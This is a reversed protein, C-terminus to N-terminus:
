RPLVRAGRGEAGGAALAARRESGRRSGAPGMEGYGRRGARAKGPLRGLGAPRSGGQRACGIEQFSPGHLMPMALSPWARLPLRARGRVGARRAAGREAARRTTRRCAMRAHRSATRPRGRAHKLAPGATHQKPLAGSRAVRMQAGARSEGQSAHIRWSVHIAPACRSSKNGHCAEEDGACARARQMAAARRSLKASFAARRERKSRCGHGRRLRAVWGARKILDAPKRGSGATRPWAGPLRM